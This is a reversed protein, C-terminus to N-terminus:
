GRRGRSRPAPRALTALEVILMDLAVEVDFVGTKVAVDTALMRRYAAELNAPPFRSAQEIVKRLPFGSLGLRAGMDDSRVGRAALAQALVLQRLQRTLMFILMQPAFERGHMAQLVALARDARGAIVADTLDWTRFQVAASVLADIDEPEIRRGAAYTALKDIEQALDGLHGGDILATLRDLAARSLDAGRDRARQAAWARLDMGTLVAFVRVDAEGAVAELFAAPAQEDILVAHTTPPLSTLVDVFQDFPTGAGAESAARRPARSRRRAGGFRALLDEVIVLRSAAFFSASHCATRLDALTLGRGDLWLTNAALNGDSDLEHRLDQLAERARFADPGYFVYLM